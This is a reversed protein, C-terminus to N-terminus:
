PQQGRGERLHLSSRTAFLTHPNVCLGYTFHMRVTGAGLGISNMKSMSVSSIPSLRIRICLSTCWVCPVGVGRCSQEARRNHVRWLAHLAFLNGIAGHILGLWM